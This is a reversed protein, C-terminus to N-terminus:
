YQTFSHEKEKTYAIIKQIKEADGTQSSITIQSTHETLPHVNMKIVSNDTKLVVDGRSEDIEAIQGLKQDTIAYLLVELAISSEMLLMINEETPSSIEPLTQIQTTEVPTTAKPAAQNSTMPAPSVTASTTKASSADVPTTDLPKKKTHQTNDRKKNVDAKDSIGTKIQKTHRMIMLVLAVVPSIAIAIFFGYLVGARIAKVFDYDLKFYIIALLSFLATLPTLLTILLIFYARIM